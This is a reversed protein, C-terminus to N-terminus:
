GRTKEMLPLLVMVTTGKGLESEVKIDGDHAKVIGYCVSLGIGTGTEKTTFFPEMIKTIVEESIGIGTDKFDVKLFDGEISTIITIDGGHPMSEKANNLLNMFVEQMQQEDIEILPENDLFQRKIQVNSGLLFQKELITVISEISDKIKVEKVEGKSPRAFRLVRRIVEKARQCEKVIIELTRKEEGSSSNGMLSLQANGSIIMLPNNVEHALESVLRGLSAFKESNILMNQSRKLDM